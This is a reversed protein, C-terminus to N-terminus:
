NRMSRRVSQKDTCSRSGRLSAHPCVRGRRTSGARAHKCLSTLWFFLNAFLLFTVTYLCTLGQLDSMCVQLSFAGRASSLTIIGSNSLDAGELTREGAACDLLRSICVEYAYLQIHIQLRLLGVSGDFWTPKCELHNLQDAFCCGLAVGLCDVQSHDSCQKGYSSCFVENDM